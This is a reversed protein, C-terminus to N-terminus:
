FVSARISYNDLLITILDLISQILQNKHQRLTDYKVIGKNGMEKIESYRSRIIIVEQTLENNSSVINRLKNLASEIKNTSLLNHIENKIEKM